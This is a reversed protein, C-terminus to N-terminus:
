IYMDRGKKKLITKSSVQKFNVGVLSDDCPKSNKNNRAEIFVQRQHINFFIWQSVGMPRKERKSHTEQNSSTCFDGFQPLSTNELHSM